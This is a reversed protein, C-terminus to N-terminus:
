RPKEVYSRCVTLLVRVVRQAWREASYTRYRRRLSSQPGCVCHEFGSLDLLMSQEWENLVVARGSM